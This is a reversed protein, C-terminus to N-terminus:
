VEPRKAFSSSGSSVARSFRGGIEVLGGLATVRPPVEEPALATKVAILHPGPFDTARRLATQLSPLDLCLTASRYGTGIGLMAWDVAGSTGTQGGTSEYGDNDLIVHTLNAPARDGVTAAAGLHMVAAGDGDLVIVRRDPHTLAIGLGIASAHGMSGAMYFNLDRDALGALERSIFGTTAVMISDSARAAIAAVAKKRDVRRGQSPTSRPAPGVSGKPVLVAYPRRRSHADAALSLALRLSQETGDLTHHSVGLVDLIGHTTSGMVAHQPEDKAADPWGRLSIFLLIPLEYTLVLSTLPNILNGLGSNQILVASRTGAIEAGAALALATGENAAAVYDGRESLLQMPGGLFSCPVGATFGVDNRSLETCFHSASIM